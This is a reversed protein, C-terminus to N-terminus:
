FHQSDTSTVDVRINYREQSVYTRKLLETESQSAYGCVHWLFACSKRHEPRTWLSKEIEYTENSMQRTEQFCQANKYRCAMCMEYM